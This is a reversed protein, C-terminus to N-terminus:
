SASLASLAARALSPVQLHWDTRRQYADGARLVLAEEFPRGAIQLGLPLGGDTAGMPVSLVPNGTSNWYGTRVAAAAGDVKTGNSESLLPAGSTATPTLVLDVQTFLDALKRMGVRRVRQAQMFDTATYYLSSAIRNRTLRGFSSWSSEFDPQHYAAAEAVITMVNVLTLEEYLPLQIPVIEAGAARMSDIAASLVGLVVPDDVPTPAHSMNDVGIRVGTLDGTLATLYDDVPETSCSPDSPDHGALVSLLLACDAASRAMPGIHDLSYALPVCGSKPVRGYTAM